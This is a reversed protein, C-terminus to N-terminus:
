ITFDNESKLEVASQLVQEFLAAAMAIVVAGFTIFIGMAVGGARDDSTDSFIFMEEVVVFGVIVVACYKITRLSRVAATSFIKKQAAYQLIKVAQYLAFFFPLSGLYAVALFPDDFYVQSFTANANVGEYHPEVLLLILAAIGILVIVTQLFAIPFRKMRRFFPAM